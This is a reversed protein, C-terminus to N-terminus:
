KTHCDTCFACGDIGWSPYRAEAETIAQSCNSNWGLSIVNEPAPYTSSDCHAGSDHVEHHGDYEQSNLVYIPM